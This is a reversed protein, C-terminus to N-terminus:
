RKLHPRHSLHQKTKARRLAQSGQGTMASATNLPLFRRSSAERRSVKLARRASGGEGISEFNAEDDSADDDSDEEDTDENDEDEECGGESERLVVVLSVLSVLFLFLFRFGYSHTPVGSSAFSEKHSALLRRILRLRRGCGGDDGDGV